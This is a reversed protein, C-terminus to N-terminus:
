RANARQESRTGVLTLRPRPWEAATPQRVKAGCHPCRADALPLSGIREVLQGSRLCVAPTM